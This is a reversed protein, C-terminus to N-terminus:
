SAGQAVGAPALSLLYRSEAEFEEVTSCYGRIIEMMADKVQAVAAQVAQAVEELPRKLATALDAESRGELLRGKLLDHERGVKEIAQAVINQVWLKDFAMLNASTTLDFRYAQGKREARASEVLGIIVNRFRGKTQDAGKLFAETAMHSSVKQVIAKIEEQSEGLTRLYQHIPPLYKTLFALFM